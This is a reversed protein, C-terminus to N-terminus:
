ADCLVEYLIDDLLEAIWDVTAVVLLITFKYAGILM